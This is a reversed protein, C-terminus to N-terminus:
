GGPSQLSSFGGFFFDPRLCDGIRRCVEVVLVQGPVFLQGVRLVPFSVKRQHRHLLQRRVADDATERFAEVAHRRVVAMAVRNLVVRGINQFSQDLVTGVRRDEDRQSGDTM